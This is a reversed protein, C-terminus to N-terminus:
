RRRRPWGAGVLSDRAAERKVLEAIQPRDIGIDRLYRDSLDNLENEARHTKVIVRVLRLLAAARAPFRLTAAAGHQITTEISM